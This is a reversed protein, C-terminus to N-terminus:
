YNINWKRLTAQDQIMARGRKNNFQSAHGRAKHKLREISNAEIEGIPDPNGINYIFAKYKM